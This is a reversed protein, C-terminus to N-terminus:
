LFKHLIEILYDNDIPKTIYDNMGSEIFKERDGKLANATVAIIPIKNKDSPLKRIIRTAEKGNMNPMNEDMLILDYNKSNVAEIAEVGDNAIEFDLGLDDLLMSLLLQNTQNDEVILICGQLEKSEYSEDQNKLPQTTDAVKFLELTFYFTSGLGLTSKLRLTGGMAEVLAKSIALGLGTGGYVRSVSNDAQEFSKFVNDIKDSSIGIGYDIVECYFSNNDSLYKLNVVVESNEKSFKIANSLLNSFVQKLRTSDGLSKQPLNEDINLTIKINKENAKDFFLNVIHEFIHHIDIEIKELEIKGNEIKSFDLIDNIITLLSHSSEKIINLKHQKASDKESNCLIDVFGIIGNLPTRIEHSMNALFDSKTRIALELEQTRQHIKEELNENSLQLEQTKKDVLKQLDLNQKKLIYQKYYSLLIIILIILAISMFLELTFINKFFNSSSFPQYVIDELRDNNATTMGLLRYINAIEQVRQNKIDGFEIEEKFALQKLIKAEYLLAEKSKNQTNYKKLILEVTEDIHNFAYKWGKLTAEQFREVKDSDADIYNQSTFLIDSYFDFGYDKPDFITFKIGKEKLHFPENSLYTTMLDTKNDILDDINFSHPMQIYDNSKINEVKMMSSIAVLSQLDDSLMIKKNKFDQIKKLDSCEKSILVYPSSQYLANLLVINKGNLKSLILSSRGVGFDSKGSLVDEEIDINFNYEKLKVDLDVESYFGKEKAIYFGAFEFQHKWLLQLSVRENSYLATTVIFFIVIFRLLINM